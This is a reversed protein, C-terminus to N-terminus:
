SQLMLARLHPWAYAVEMLKTGGIDIVKSTALQAGTKEYFSRSRNQELVWVAMSKFNRELMAAAIARLLEAGIGRKQAEKLLYISYLEGDCETVAERNAGGHAFGVVRGDWEAVFVLSGVSLWEGWLRARLAEDLGALYAAPVIGAYTTQWSEVHVHAIAGADTKAAARILLKMCIDENLAIRAQFSGDSEVQM